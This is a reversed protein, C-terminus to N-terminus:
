HSCRASTGLRLSRPLLFDQAVQRFTVVLAM